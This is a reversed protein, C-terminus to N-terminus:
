SPTTPASQSLKQLGSEEGLSDGDAVLMNFKLYLFLAQPNPVYKTLVDSLMCQTPIWSIRVSNNDVCQRIDAIDLLVRKEQLTGSSSTNLHDHLSRCDTCLQGPEGTVLKDMWHGKQDNTTAWATQVFCLRDLGISAACAEAALTSKVVRKITSSEWSLIHGQTLGGHNPYASLFVMVGRQSNLGPEGAFSADHMVCVRLGGGEPIKIKRFYIRTSAQAKTRRLVANAELLTEVCGKSASQQLRSVLYSLQPMCVRAPWALQQILSLLASHESPTLPEQKQSRRQRSVEIHQISQVYKECDISIWGAGQEIRRGLLQLSAGTTEKLVTRKSVVDRLEQQAKEFHDGSGAWIGDDVHLSLMGVLTRRGDSDCEVEFLLFTAVLESHEEWGTKLLLGRIELWWLRPSEPLGFVGKLIKLLHRSTLGLHEANKPPYVYLKRATRQGSLFADKVDFSAISWDRQVAVSLLMYLSLQPATPSDTRVDSDAKCVHGPLILRSKAKIDDQTGKNTRLLRTPVPLIFEREPGRKIQEAQDPEIIEFAGTRLHAEIQENDAVKFLEWEKENFHRPDLEKGGTKLELVLVEEDQNQEADVEMEPAVSVEHQTGVAENGDSGAAVMRAPEADPELESGRPTSAVRTQDTGEHVGLGSLEISGEDLRVDEYPVQVSEDRLMQSLRTSAEEYVGRALREEVTAARMQEPSVLFLRTGYSVWYNCRVTGMEQSTSETDSRNVRALVVAPGTWRARERTARGRNYRASKSRQWFYIQAGLQYEIREPVRADALCKRWKVDADMRALAEEATARLLNAKAAVPDRSLEMDVGTPYGRDRAEIVSGSWRLNTGFVRQAASYGTSTPRANKAACAVVCALKIDDVSNLQHVTFLTELIDGLIGGHREVLSNQHPSELAATGCITGCRNLEQQFAIGFERGLDHKVVTPAGFPRIWCTLVKKAVAFSSKDKVRALMSYRTATDLLNLLTYVRGAVDHVFKLDVSVKVNFEQAKVTGSVSALKQPPARQLCLPCQWHKLFRLHLHSKGALKAMRIMVARGPHGLQHHVRKCEAKVAAPVSKIAERIRAPMGGVEDPLEIETDTMSRRVWDRWQGELLEEEARETAPVEDPALEGEADEMVREDTETIPPMRSAREGLRPRKPVHESEEEDPEDGTPTSPVADLRPDTWPERRPAAADLLPEMEAVDMQRRREAPSAAPASSSSSSSTPLWAPDTVAFTPHSRRVWVGSQKLGVKLCTADDHGCQFARALPVLTTACRVRQSGDGFHCLDRLTHNWVVDDPNWCAHQRPAVFMLHAGRQRQWRCLAHTLDIVHTNEYDPLRVCLVDAQGHWVHQALAARGAAEHLPFGTDGTLPIAHKWSILNGLVTALLASFVFVQQLTLRRGSHLQKIAVTKVALKRREKATLHMQQQLDHVPFGCEHLQKWHVPTLKFPDKCIYVSVSHRTGATVKSVGHFKSGDLCYWKATLDALQGMAPCGPPLPLLEAPAPTKGDGAVWLKGGKFKGTARVWSLGTNRDQHIKLMDGECMRALSVSSFKADPHEEHLWQQILGVEAKYEWTANTLGIGRRTYAGICLSRVSEEGLNTRTSTKPVSRRSLLRHLVHETSETVEPEQEGVVYCPVCASASSASGPSLHLDAPFKEKCELSMDQWLCLLPHGSDASVVPVSQAGISNLSVTFTSLDLVCGISTMAAVSLLPPCDEHIEAVEITFAKGHVLCPYRWTRKSRIERGDGFRFGTELDCSAPKLGCQKLKKRMGRHWRVGAVSKKCGTDLVMFGIVEKGDKAIFVDNAVVDDVKEVAGTFETQKTVKNFKWMMKGCATCKKWAHTGNAGARASAHECASTSGETPGDVNIAHVIRAVLERKNGKTSWARKRLWDQLQKNTYSELLDVDVEAPIDVSVSAIPGSIDTQTAVDKVGLDLVVDAADCLVYEDQSRQRTRRTTTTNMYVTNWFVSKKNGGQQSAPAQAPRPAVEGSKVMRCQPDGRWHGLEKCDACRTVKKKDAVSKSSDGGQKKHFHAKTKTYLTELLEETDDSGIEEDIDEGEAEDGEQQAPDDTELMQSSASPDGTPVEDEM